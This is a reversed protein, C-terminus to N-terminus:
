PNVRGEYDITAVQVIPRVEYIRGGAHYNVSLHRRKFGTEKDVKPTGYGFEAIYNGLLKPPTLIDQPVERGVMEELRDLYKGLRYSFIRRILGSKDDNFLCYSRSADYRTQSRTWQWGHFEVLDQSDPQDAFLETIVVPVVPNVSGRRKAETEVFISLRLLDIQPGLPFRVHVPIPKRAVGALYIREM